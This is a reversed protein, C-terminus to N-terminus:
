ICDMCKSIDICNLANSMMFGVELRSQINDNACALQEAEIPFTAHM